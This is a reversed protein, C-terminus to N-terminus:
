DLACAPCAGTGCSPPPTDAASPKYWDNGKFQLGTASILKKLQEAGCNPCTTLPEDNMKQMAEMKHGCADCAYEYIPM